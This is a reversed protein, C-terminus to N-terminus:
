KKLPAGRALADAEFLRRAVVVAQTRNGAGLKSMIRRVHVKATSRSVVLRLAIEENSLGQDLLDLVERERPTLAGIGNTAAVVLGTRRALEIDRAAATVHRAVAAAAEDRAVLELLRPYARYAIVFADTFEAEQASLLREAAAKSANEPEEAETVEEILRAFGAYHRGEISMSSGAPDCRSFGTEDRGHSAAAAVAVLGLYESVLSPPLVDRLRPDYEALAAQADGDFLALKFRLVAYAGHLVSHRSPRVRELERISARAGDFDRLGLQAAALQIRQFSAELENRRYRKSITVAEGALSAATVYDSRSVALYAVVNLFKQRVIPRARGRSALLPHAAAWAGSLSDTRAASTIRGYVALLLENIDASPIAELEAAVSALVDSELAAAALVAHWLSRARDRHTQAADRARLSAELSEGHRGSAYLSQALIQWADCRRADTGSLKQLIPRILAEVKAHQDFFNLLRARMLVIDDEGPRAPECAALFRDATELRLAATLEPWAEKVVAVMRDRRGASAALEFADDWRQELCATAVGREVVNLFGAPDAALARRRLFEGLLPHFAVTERGRPHLLGEDRLYAIRDEVDGLGLVSASGSSLSPLIAARLMFEQVDLPERRFVEEAFYRYLLEDFQGDPIALTSARAALAILAPWGNARAVLAEVAGTPKDPLLRGAEARTMALQDERLEYLEGHLLGRATAWGPRRRSTVLLRVPTLELLAGILREAAASDALMHYDDIALWIDAPRDAIRGALLEALRRVRPERFAGAELQERVREEMGSALLEVLESALVALDASAPTARYWAVREKTQLWEQALSTKGYGAPAVLLIGRATVRDLLSTLRPRAVHGPPL